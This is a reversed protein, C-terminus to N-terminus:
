SHLGQAAPARAEALASVFRRVGEIRESGDLTGDAWLREIELILASGVIFGDTHTSLERAGEADRIGFGVLLPNRKVLRRARQLYAGVADRSGLDAGTLGAVSVAYVFGSTAEDVATIRAESANPAILFVMDLGADKAAAEIGVGASGPPLDPLILGDVGCSYADRCFNGPGYALIPNVYGMLYLPTESRRRFSEVTRFADRMTVGAALARASSRQIPLGEALPDSFPMGLEIFDAGAEDIARLIEGTSELDPFGNTVFIGALKRGADRAETVIKRFRTM